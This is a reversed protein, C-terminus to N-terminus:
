PHVKHWDGARQILRRFTHIVDVWTPLLGRYPNNSFISRSFVVEFTITLGRKPVTKMKGEPFISVMLESKEM